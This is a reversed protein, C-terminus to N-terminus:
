YRRLLPKLNDGVFLDFKALMDSLTFAGTIQMAMTNRRPHRSNIPADHYHIHCNMRGTLEV